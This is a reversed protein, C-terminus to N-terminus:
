RLFPDVLPLSLLAAVAIMACTARRFTLDSALGFMKSGGWVGFLYSPLTIVVPALIWTGFLGAFALTITTLTTAVAIFVTFTARIRGADVSQGLLYAMVPPGGSAAIGNMVGSAFGVMVTVPSSPRGSYQWGSMILLLLGLIILCIMWRLALADLSVLIMAGIPIGLILGVALLGIERRDVIKWARPTLVIVALADLALLLPAAQKPGLAAAAIPVFILAVGFGSFGRALGAALAAVVLWVIAAGSRLGSTSLFDFM